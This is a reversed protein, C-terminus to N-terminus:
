PNAGGPIFSLNVPPRNTNITQFVPQMVLNMDRRDASM